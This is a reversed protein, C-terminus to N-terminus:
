AVVRMVRVKYLALAERSARECEITLVSGWATAITPLAGGNIADVYAQSPATINM